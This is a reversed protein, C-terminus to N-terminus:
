SPHTLPLFLAGLRAIHGTDRDGAPVTDRLYRVPQYLSQPPRYREFAVCPRFPRLGPPMCLMNFVVSFVLQMRESDMAEANNSTDAHPRPTSVDLRSSRACDANSRLSYRVVIMSVRFIKCFSGCFRSARNSSPLAEMRM